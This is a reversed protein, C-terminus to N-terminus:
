CSRGRQPRGACASRGRPWSARPAPTPPSAARGGIRRPAARTLTGRRQGARMRVRVEEACAAGLRQGRAPWARAVRAARARVGQVAQVCARARVCRRRRAHVRLYTGPESSASRMCSSPAGLLPWSGLKSGVEATGVTGSARGSPVSAPSPPPPSPPPAGPPPRPSPPALPPGILLKTPWPPPGAPRKPFSSSPAPPWDCSTSGHRCEHIAHSPTPSSATPTATSGGRAVRVRVRSACDGGHM